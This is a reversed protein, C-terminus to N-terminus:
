ALRMGNATADDFQQQYTANDAGHLASWGSGDDGIWISAFYESGGVIYGSVRLPRLGNAVNQDFLGQYDAGPVGHHAAWGNVESQEFIATYTDSGNLEYGSIDVPRFGQATLSEFQGQYDSGAVRHMGVWAPGPSQDWISAYFDQGGVSYGCLRLLRYGQSTLNDFEQQYADGTLGHNAVWAYGSQRLGRSSIPVHGHTAFAATPGGLALGGAAGVVAVGLLDRRTGTSRSTPLCFTTPNTM